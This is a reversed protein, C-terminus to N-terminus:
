KSNGLIIQRRSHVKFKKDNPQKKVNSGNNSKEKRMDESEIEEFNDIESLIESPIENEDVDIQVNDDEKLPKKVIEKKNEIKKTTKELNINETNKLKNFKNNTPELKNNNKNLETIYVAILDKSRVAFGDTETSFSYIDSSNLMKNIEEILVNIDRDENIDTLAIPKSFRELYFLFKKGMEIDKKVM